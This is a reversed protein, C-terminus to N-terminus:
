ILIEPWFHWTIAADADIKPSMRCYTTPRPPHISSQPYSPWPTFSWKCDCTPPPPCYLIYLLMIKMLKILLDLFNFGLFMFHHIFIIYLWYAILINVNQEHGWKYNKSWSSLLCQLSLWFQQGKQMLAGIPGDQCSNFRLFIVNQILDM